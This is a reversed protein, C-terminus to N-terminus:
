TLLHVLTPGIHRHCQQSHTHRTSVQYWLTVQATYNVIPAVMANWIGGTTSNDHPVQGCQPVVEARTWEEVWTGGYTVQLLGLPVRGQLAIDLSLGYYYCTSAFYFFGCGLGCDVADPSSVRWSNGSWRNTTDNLPVASKGWSVTFLRISPHNISDAITEAGGFTYNLSLEM